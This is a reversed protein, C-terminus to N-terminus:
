IAMPAELKDYYKYGDLQFNEVKYGQLRSLTNYEVSPEFITLKPFMYPIRKIQEEVVDFHNKYIHCDGGVWNLRHPILNCYKAILHTLLSYSAINFPVGIFMDCSRQYLTCSLEKKNSVHFQAFMHCPPLAMLPIEAVNWASLIHRRSNPDEKLSKILQLIQDTEDSKGRWQVGYIPGLIGSEYGKEKGQKEANDTWITRKGVLEERPKGYHIEALRREDQSGELFWLLESVISKWAIKKSTFVPIYEGLDFSLTSHFISRTGVGTRDEKDEGNKLIHEMLDLYELEAYNGYQYMLEMEPTIDIM